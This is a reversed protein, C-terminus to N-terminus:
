TQRKGSGDRRASRCGRLLVGREHQVHVGARDQMIVVAVGNAM